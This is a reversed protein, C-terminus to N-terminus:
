LRTLVKKWQEAWRERSFSQAVTERGLAIHETDIFVFDLGADSIVSPWRTSASLVASGYVRGSELKETLGAALNM